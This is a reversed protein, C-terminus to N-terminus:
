CNMYKWNRQKGEAIWAIADALRRARTADAKAEAIWTLYERQQSPSFAAFQQKARPNASLARKLDPHMAVAPKASAKRRTVKVGDDNLQMAKKIWKTMAAKSPLDKTSTLRGFSGWAEAAKDTKGVVLDHKWFGFTCHKQFAAMGCLLGHFEFSPQRWKITEVVEPCAAHIMARLATLIPRAFDASKDIYADIRPDRTVM